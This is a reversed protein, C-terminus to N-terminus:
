SWKAYQTINGTEGAVIAAKETTLGVDSYWGEFTSGDKTPANFTFDTEITYTAINLLSNTGGDLEYTITYAIPTYKSYVTTDEEIRVTDGAVVEDTLLLDFFWGALTYGAYTTTALAGYTSDYTVVKSVPNPVGLGADFTLTFTIPTYTGLAKLHWEGDYYLYFNGNDATILEDGVEADVPKAEASTIYRTRNYILEVADLVADVGVTTALDSLKTLIDSATTDKAVADLKTLVDAITDTGYADRVAELYERIQEIKTNTM